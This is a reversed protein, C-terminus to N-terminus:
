KVERPKRYGGFGHQVRALKARIVTARPQKSISPLVRLKRCAPTSLRTEFPHTSLRSNTNFYSTSLAWYAHADSKVAGFIAQVTPTEGSVRV